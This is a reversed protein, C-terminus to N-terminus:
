LYLTTNFLDNICYEFGDYIEPSDETILRVHVKCLKENTDTSYSNAIAYFYDSSILNLCNTITKNMENLNEDDTYPCIVEFIILIQKPLGYNEIQKLCYITKSRSRDAVIIKMTTDSHKIQTLNFQKTEIESNITKPLLIDNMLEITNIILPKNQIYRNRMIDYINVTKSLAKATILDM